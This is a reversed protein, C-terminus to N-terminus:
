VENKKLDSVKLEIAIEVEGDESVEAYGDGVEDSHDAAPQDKGFSFQFHLWLDTSSSTPDANAVTDYRYWDLNVLDFMRMVALFSTEGHEVLSPCLEGWSYGTCASVEQESGVDTEAVDPESTAEAETEEEAEIEMSGIDKQVEAEEIPLILVLRQVPVRLEKKTVGKYEARDKPKLEALLSYVVTCTHVLGDM